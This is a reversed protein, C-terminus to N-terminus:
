VEMKEVVGEFDVVGVCCLVVGAADQGGAFLLRSLWWLALNLKKFSQSNM